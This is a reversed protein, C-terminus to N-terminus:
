PRVYATEDYAPTVVFSRFGQRPLRFMQGEYPVEIAYRWTGPSVAHAEIVLRYNGRGDAEMPARIDGPVGPMQYVAQPQEIPQGGAFLVLHVDHDDDSAYPRDALTALLMGVADKFTVVYPSGPTGLTILKGNKTVDIYYEVTEEPKLFSTPLSAWLQEGRAQMPVAEYSGGAFTRYHVTGGVPEDAGRNISVEVSVATGAARLPTYAHHVRTCGLVLPLCLAAVIGRMGGM